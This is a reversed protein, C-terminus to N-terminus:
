NNKDCNEGKPGKANPNVTNIFYEEECQTCGDKMEGISAEAQRLMDKIEQEAAQARERDIQALESPDPYDPNQSQSHPLANKEQQGLNELREQNEKLRLEAAKKEAILEQNKLTQEECMKEVSDLKRQISAFQDRLCDNLKKVQRLCELYRLADVLFQIKAVSDMYVKIETSDKCFIFCPELDGPTGDTPTPKPDPGLTLTPGPQTITETPSNKDNMLNLLTLEKKQELQSIRDTLEDIAGCNRKGKELTESVFMTASQTKDIIGQTLEAEDLEAYHRTKEAAVDIRFEPETM